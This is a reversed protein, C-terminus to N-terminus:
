ALGSQLAEGDGDENDAERRLTEWALMVQKRSSGWRYDGIVGTKRLVRHCPILLAVSNDGVASGVARVAKPRGIAKALDEYTAVDGPAVRLLAQWVQVQFPTGKVLVSLPTRERPPTQPFIRGAWPATLKTSEIFSAKPWQERLSELAEVESEGTLFHLGCIGRECVAILCDGFPSAHVGHHITLGDGALKFEGPTMATLTVFLEHLRGGGSLGVAFSTDLVSRREALLRRASSLTHIQLFRKPSIGAWRTFLRQFHFPSLGVHAAVDDLSPQERAHADLYLIAQEIRAYDSNAM